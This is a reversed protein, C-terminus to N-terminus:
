VQVEGSCKQIIKTLHDMLAAEEMDVTDRRKRIEERRMERLKVIDPDNSPMAKEEEALRSEMRDVMKRFEGVKEVKRIFDWGREECGGKLLAM